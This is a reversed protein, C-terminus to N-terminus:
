FEHKVSLSFTNDRFINGRPGITRRFDISATNWAATLTSNSSPDLIYNLNLGYPARSINRDFASVFAGINLNDAVRWGGNILLKAELSDPLISGFYRTAGLSFRDFNATVNANISSQSTRVPLGQITIAGNLVYSGSVGLVINNRKSDKGLGITQSASAFVQSYYEPDPNLYGIGGFSATLGSPTIVSFDSGVYSKIDTKTKPKFGVNFLAGTYYRWISNETMSTGTFSLHPYYDTRQRITDVDNRDVDTNLVSVYAQAYVNQIAASTFRINDLTVDVPVNGGEGGTQTVIRPDRLTVYFFDRLFQRDIVPSMGLWLANHSAGPPVKPDKGVSPAYGTGSQYV